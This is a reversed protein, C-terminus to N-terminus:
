GSKQLVLFRYSILGQKLCQQLALGGLLSGIYPHYSRTRMWGVVLLRALPVPLKSLRLTPTLDIQSVLCFGNPQAMEIVQEYTSLHPVHWGRQFAALWLHVSRTLEKDGNAQRFDDCLLL